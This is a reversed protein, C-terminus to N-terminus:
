RSGTPLELQVVVADDFATAWLRGDIEVSSYVGLADGGEGGHRRRQAVADMLYARLEGSAASPLDTAEVVSTIEHSRPDIGALFPGGDTRVWVSDHGVTIAAGYSADIDYVAVDWSCDPRRGRTGLEVTTSKQADNDAFGPAGTPNLESVTPPFVTGNLTWFQDPYM